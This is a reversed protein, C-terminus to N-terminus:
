WTYRRGGFEEVSCHCGFSGTDIRGQVITGDLTGDAQKVDIASQAGCSSYAGRWGCQSELTEYLLKHILLKCLGDRGFHELEQGLQAM